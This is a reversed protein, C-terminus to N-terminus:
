KKRKQQSVNGSLGNGRIRQQDIPDAMFFLYPFRNFT